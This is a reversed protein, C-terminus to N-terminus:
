LGYKELMRKFSSYNVDLLRAAEMKKGGSAALAQEIAQCQLEKFTQPRASGKEIPAMNTAAMVKVVDESTLTEEAFLAARKM